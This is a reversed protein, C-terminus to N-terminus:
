PTEGTRSHLKDEQIGIYGGYFLLASSVGYVPFVGFGSGLSGFVLPILLATFRNIMLRIGVTEGTRDKPSRNYIITMAIPQGCGLGFGLMFSILLLIYYQEFMPILAMSFASFLMTFIMLKSEEYRRLLLPMMLRVIVFAASNISLVTGIMSASMDISKGYISFYFNFISSGTLLIGSTIFAARLRPRKLLDLSSKKKTQETVEARPFTKRATRPIYAQFLVVLIAATLGIGGMIFFMNKFGALDIAFGAVLPGVSSSLASSISYVGFNKARNTGEGLSGIMNQLTAQFFIQVLGLFLVLVYLIEAGGITPLVYLVAGFLSTFLFLVKNDVRDSAKGASIALLAPFIQSVALLLGIGHPTVGLEIAYLVVGVKGGRVCVEHFFSIIAM